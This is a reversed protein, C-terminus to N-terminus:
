QRWAGPSRSCLPATLVALSFQDGGLRAALKIVVNGERGAHLRDCQEPALVASDLHGLM